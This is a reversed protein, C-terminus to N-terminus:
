INKFKSEFIYFYYRNYVFIFTKEENPKKM